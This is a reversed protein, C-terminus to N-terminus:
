MHWPLNYNSKQNDHYFKTLIQMFNSIKVSHLVRSYNIVVGHNCLVSSIIIPANTITSFGMDIIM